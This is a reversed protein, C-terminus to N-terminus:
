GQTKAADAQAAVTRVWETMKALRGERTSTDMNATASQAAQQYGMAKQLGQQFKAAANPTNQTYASVGKSLAGARWGADGTRAIGADIRGDSIARQLGADRRAKAATANAAWNQANQIGQQYYPGAQTVNRKWKDTSQQVSKFQKAM